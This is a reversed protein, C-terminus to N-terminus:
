LKGYAEKLLEGKEKYAEATKPLYTNNIFDKLEDLTIEGTIYQVEMQDMKTFLDPENAKLQILKADVVNPVDVVKVKELYNTIGKNYEALKEPTDCLSIYAPQGKYTVSINTYSSFESRCRESQEENRLLEKTEPNYTEYHVGEKGINMVKWGEPSNGFDIFKLAADKVNSDASVAWAGWASPQVTLVREGKSDKFM